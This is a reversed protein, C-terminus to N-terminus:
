LTYLHINMYIMSKVSLKVQNNAEKFMYCAVNEDSPFFHIYGVVKIKTIFIIKVLHSFEEKSIHTYFAEGM